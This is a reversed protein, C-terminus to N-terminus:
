RSIEQFAYEFYKLCKDGSNLGIIECNNFNHKLNWRGLLPPKQPPPIVITLIRRILSM